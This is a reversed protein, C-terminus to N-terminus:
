GNSNETSKRTSNDDDIRSKFSGDFFFRIPEGGEGTLETPMCTPLIKLVIDKKIKKDNGKMKKIAWDLSLGKLTAAKERNEKSYPKGGRNGVANKNGIKSAM